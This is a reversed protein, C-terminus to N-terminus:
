HSWPNTNNRDYMALATLKNTVKESGLSSSRFSCGLRHGCVIMFIQMSQFVSGLSFFKQWNCIQLEEFEMKPLSIYIYLHSLPITSYWPIGLPTWFKGQLKQRHWATAFLAAYFRWGSHASDRWLLNKKAIFHAKSNPEICIWTLLPLSTNTQLWQKKMTQSTKSNSGSGTWM